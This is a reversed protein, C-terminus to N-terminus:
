PSCKPVGGTVKSLVCSSAYMVASGDDATTSFTDSKFTGSGEAILHIGESAPDNSYLSSSTVSINGPTGSSDSLLSTFFVSLPYSITVHDLTILDGSHRLQVFLGAGTTGTLTAGVMKVNSTVNASGDDAVILKNTTITSGEIDLTAGQSLHITCPVAVSVTERRSVITQSVVVSGFGSSDTAAACQRAIDAFSTPASAPASSADGRGFFLAGAGAVLAVVIAAIALKKM